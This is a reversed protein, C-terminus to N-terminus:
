ENYTVGEMVYFCAPAKETIECPKPLARCQEIFKEVENRNQIIQCDIIREKKKSDLQYVTIRYAM